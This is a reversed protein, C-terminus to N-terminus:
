NANEIALCREISQGNYWVVKIYLIKGSKIAVFEKVDDIITNNGLNSTKNSSVILKENLLKIYKPSSGKYYNITIINGSTEVERANQNVGKEIICIADNLYNFGRNQLISSKYSKVYSILLSGVVGIMLFALAMVVVIEILTFGKKKM